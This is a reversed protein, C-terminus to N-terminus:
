MAMLNRRRKKHWSRGLDELKKEKEKSLVTWKQICTQGIRKVGTEREKKKTKM